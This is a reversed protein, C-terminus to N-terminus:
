PHLSLSELISKRGLKLMGVDSSCMNMQMGAEIWRVLPRPSGFHIGSFKGCKVAAERVREFASVIAPNEFEDLMGFDQSLDNPGILAVDIGEVTLIEEINKVGLRSEIQCLLITEGNAQEMYERKQVSKFDTHPRSLSVGRHGLPAYKTYDVLQKAQEATETNPLLLGSAGMEMFKLAVERRLEPIRVIAPLGVARAIGIMRACEGYDFSSHECDITFFDLGCTQLIKALDPNSFTTIMTGLLQEGNKLRQKIKNSVM